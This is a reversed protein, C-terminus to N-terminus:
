DNDLASYYGSRLSPEHVFFTEGFSRILSNLYINYPNRTSKNRVVVKEVGPVFFLRSDKPRTFDVFVLLDGLKGDVIYKNGTNKSLRGLLQGIDFYLKEDNYTYLGEKKNDPELSLPRASMPIQYAQTEETSSVLTGLIVGQNYLNDRLTLREHDAPSPYKIVRTYIGSPQRAIIDESGIAINALSHRPDTIQESTLEPRPGSFNESM